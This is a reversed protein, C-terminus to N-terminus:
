TKNFYKINRKLIEDYPLKTNQERTESITARKSQVFASQNLIHICQGESAKFLETVRKKSVIGAVIINVDSDINQCLYRFGLIFSKWVTSAKLSIGVVQFSFSITKINNKNIAECWRYLDMRNYWSIDPIAKLGSYIMENYVIESRKMNYLHDLRPADDYVSFNPSIIAHFGMEKLLEYITFRNDGFGELTRDKVYFQLIGKVNNDLNLARRFGNTLYSKNIREGNKSFMKGAHVGVMPIDKKDFKVKLRDPIIPVHIPLKFDTSLNSEPNLDLGGLSNLHSFLGKRHPCLSFCKNCDKKCISAECMSCGGCYSKIVCKSCDKGCLSKM